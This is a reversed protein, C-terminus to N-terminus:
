GGLGPAKPTTGPAKAAEAAYAPERKVYQLSTPIYDSATGISALITTFTWISVHGHKIQERLYLGM